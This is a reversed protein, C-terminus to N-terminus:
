GRGRCLPLSTEGGSVDGVVGELESYLPDMSGILDMQLRMALSSCRSGGRMGACQVHRLPRGAFRFKTRFLYEARQEIWSLGAVGTTDSCGTQGARGQGARGTRAERWGM